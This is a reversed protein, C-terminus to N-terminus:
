HITVISNKIMRELEALEDPTYDCFEVDIFTENDHFGIIWILDHEIEYEIFQGESVRFLHSERM